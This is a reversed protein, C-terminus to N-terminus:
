LCGTVIIDSAAWCIAPFSYKKLSSQEFAYCQVFVASSCDIWNNKRSKPEHVKASLRKAWPKLRDKYSKVLTLLSKKSVTTLASRHACYKCSMLTAQWVADSSMLSISSTNWCISFAPKSIDMPSTGTSCVTSQIKPFVMVMAPNAGKSSHIVLNIFLM